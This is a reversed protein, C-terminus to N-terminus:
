DPKVNGARGVEVLFFDEDDIIVRGLPALGSFLREDPFPLYAADHESGGSDQPVKRKNVLVHSIDYKKLLEERSGSWTFFTRTDRVRELNELVFPSNHLLSIVKVDTICPLIWSTAIDTLVIDGRQLFHRLSLYHQLPHIYKKVHFRPQWQLYQPVYMKAALYMQSLFGIGLAAVFTFRLVTRWRGSTWGPSEHLVNKLMRSFALQSFFM